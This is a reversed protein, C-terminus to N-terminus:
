NIENIDSLERGIVVMTIAEESFGAVSTLAQPL